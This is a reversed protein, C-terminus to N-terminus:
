DERKMHCEGQTATDTDLYGGTMLVTIRIGTVKPQSRMKIM